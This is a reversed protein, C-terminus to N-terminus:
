KQIGSSQNRRGFGRGGDICDREPALPDTFISAEVSISSPLVAFCFFDMASVGDELGTDDSHLLEIAWFRRVLKKGLQACGAGAVVDVTMADAFRLLILSGSKISCFM